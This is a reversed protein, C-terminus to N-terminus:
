SRYVKVILIAGLGILGFNGLLAAYPPWAGNKARDAGLAFLPYYTLLIPLFCVGFSTWLDASRKLIALPAGFFVFSFCSFGLAWRRWPESALRFNRKDLEELNARHEAAVGDDFWGLRGTLLATANRALLAQEHGQRERQLAARVNAVESLAVESAKFSPRGKRSAKELPIEFEIPKQGGDVAWSSENHWQWDILELVLTESKENLRLSAKEAVITNTQSNSNIMITPHILMKGEVDEVHILLGNQSAYSGNARLFGYVIDELSHLVIRNLGPQGWSMALDNVWVLIPSLVLALAFVPTLFRFPHVGSSKVALFENDAAMRGYVSCVAFLLATPSAFQLSILTAYPLLKIFVHLGLGASILQHAIVGVMIISTSVVLTVAALSLVEWLIYRSFLRPWFM